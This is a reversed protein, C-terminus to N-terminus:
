ATAATKDAVVSEEGGQAVVEPIADLLDDELYRLRSNMYGAATSLLTFIGLIILLLGMGRGEGVGIIKGVSGALPGNIALLPEFIKDTLPGAILYALPSASWVVMMRISLVRGQVDLPTKSLWIAQNCGDIIPVTFVFGFGAIAILAVSPRLGMLILCLGLMVTFGLVGQIRRRPGGWISLAISGVLLGLSAISAIRGVVEISAMGLLMPTLVVNSMGMNFNIVAFFVLLWILGPRAKIYAWGFAAESWLSGKASEGEVTAAPRPIHVILLTSVAFLFTAFDVVMVWYVPMFALMMGAALPSAIQALAPGIQMIGSVRSLQEKSVLLPISATYALSHLVGAAAAVAIILCVHWVQLSEFYLLLAIALSCFGAVSDGLIMTRRRDWRDVLAGAFPSILISPISVALITLAFKTVSRTSQYVWIGIAFNTLGTGLISVLQGIGIIIFTRLKRNDAKQDM